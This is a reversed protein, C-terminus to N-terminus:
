SNVNVWEAETCDRSLLMDFAKTIEKQGDKLNEEEDITKLLDEIDINDKYM